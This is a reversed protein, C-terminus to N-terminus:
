RQCRLASPVAQFSMAPAVAAVSVITSRVVASLPVCTCTTTLLATPLTVLATTCRATSGTGCAGLKVVEGVETETTAPWGAVNLACATPVGTGSM